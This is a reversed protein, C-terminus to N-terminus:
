HVGYRNAVRSAYKAKGKASRPKRAKKTKPKADGAAREDEGAGEKAAKRKRVGGVGTVNKAADDGNECVNRIFSQDIKISAGPFNRLHNLSSYGTGFDDLSVQLGM